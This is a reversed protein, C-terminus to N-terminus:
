RFKHAVAYLRPLIYAVASHACAVAKMMYLTTDISTYYDGLYVNGHAIPWRSGSNIKRSFNENLNVTRTPLFRAVGVFFINTNYALANFILLNSALDAPVRVRTAKVLKHSILCLISYPKEEVICIPIYPSSIRHGRTFRTSHIKFEVYLYVNEETCGDCIRRSSAYFNGLPYQTM